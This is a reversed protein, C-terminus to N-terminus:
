ILNTLNFLIIYDHSRNDLSGFCYYPVVMDEDQQELVFNLFVFVNVNLSIGYGFVFVVFIYKWIVWKNFAHSGPIITPRPNTGLEINLMTTDVHYQCNPVYGLIWM